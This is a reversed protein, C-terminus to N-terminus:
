FGEFPKWNGDDGLEQWEDPLELDVGWARKYARRNVILRRRRTSITAQSVRRPPKAPWSQRGIMAEQQQWNM